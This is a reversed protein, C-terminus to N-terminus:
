LEDSITNYNNDGYVLSVIYESGVRNCLVIIYQNNQTLGVHRKLITQDDLLEENLNYKASVTSLVFDFARLASEKTEYIELFEISQFQNNQLEVILYEWNIDGFSFYTSYRKKFILRYDTSHSDEYFDHKYFERIVDDKKAGFSVGFFQNQIHDNYARKTQTVTGEVSDLSPNNSCSYVGIIVLFLTLYYIKKM